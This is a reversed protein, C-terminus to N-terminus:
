TISTGVETFAKCITFLAEPHLMCIWTPLIADFYSLGRYDDFLQSGEETNNEGVGDEGRCLIETFCFCSVAGSYVPCLDVMLNPDVKKQSGQM